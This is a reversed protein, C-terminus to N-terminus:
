DGGRSVTVRTTPIASTSCRALFVDTIDKSESTDQLKKSRAHAAFRELWINTAEFDDMQIVFDDHTDRLSAM